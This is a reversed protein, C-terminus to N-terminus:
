ITSIGAMAGEANFQRGLRQFLLAVGIGTAALIECIIWGSASVPAKDPFVAVLTGGMFGFVMFYALATFRAFIRKTVNSFAVMGLLFAIAVPSLILAAGFPDTFASKATKLLYQYVGFLMLVMSVSMGPMMGAIGAVFGAACLLRLDFFAGQAAGHIRYFLGAGAAIAFAALMGILYRMRIGRGKAAAYGTAQGGALQAQGGALQAQRFIYPLGGAVLGIFLAKAQVDYSSFLWSLGLVGASFAFVAGIGMPILCLINQRFNRFPNAVIGILEGYIGMMVAIVSGSVGPAIISVALFFGCLVRYCFRRSKQNSIFVVAKNLYCPTCFLM